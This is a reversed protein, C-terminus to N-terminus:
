WNENISDNALQDAEYNRFRDIHVYKIFNYDILGLMSQVSNYYGIINNSRVQYVGDLQNLVVQSDGRIYLGHCTISNEYLYELADCLGQYEAQNNSVNYGLFNKGQAIFNSDSGNCDMEYMLWGCGAPGRPNNKSAGDFYVIIRHYYDYM